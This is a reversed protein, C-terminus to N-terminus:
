LRRFLFVCLLERPDLLYTFESQEVSFPRLRCTLQRRRQLNLSFYDGFLVRFFDLMYGDFSCPNFLSM